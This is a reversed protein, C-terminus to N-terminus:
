GGLSYILIPDPLANIILKKREPTQMGRWVLGTIPGARHRSVGGGVKTVLSVLLDCFSFIEVKNSM